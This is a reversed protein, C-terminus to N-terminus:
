TNAGYLSWGNASPRNGTRVTSVMGNSVGLVLSAEHTSAFHKVIGDKILTIPKRVKDKMAESKPQRLRELADESFRSTKETM